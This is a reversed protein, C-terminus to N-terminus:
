SSFPNMFDDSVPWGMEASFDGGTGENDLWLEDGDLVVNSDNGDEDLFNLNM